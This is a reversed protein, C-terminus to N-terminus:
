GAYGGPPYFQRQPCELNIISASIYTKPVGDLQEDRAELLEDSVLLMWYPSPFNLNLPSSAHGTSSYGSTDDVGVSQHERRAQLTILNSAYVVAMHYPSHLNYMLNGVPDM